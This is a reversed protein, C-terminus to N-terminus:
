KKGRETKMKDIKINLLKTQEDKTLAKLIEEKHEKPVQSWIVGLVKTNIEKENLLQKLQKTTTEKQNKLYQEQIIKDVKECIPIIPKLQNELETKHKKMADLHEKSLQKEAESIGKDYQRKYSIFLRGTFTVETETKEILVVDGNEKVTYDRKKSLEKVKPQEAPQQNM